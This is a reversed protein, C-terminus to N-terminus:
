RKARPSSPNSSSSSSVSSTPATIDIGLRKKVLEQDGFDSVLAAFKLPERTYFERIKEEALKFSGLGIFLRKGDSNVTPLKRIREPILFYHYAIIPDEPEDRVRSDFWRIMSAITGEKYVSDQVTKSEWDVTELLVRAYWACRKTKEIRNKSHDGEFSETFNLDCFTIFMERDGLEIMEKLHFEYVERNTEVHFRSPDGLSGMKEYLAFLKKYAFGSELKAAARLLDVKQNLDEIAKLQKEKQESTLKSIDRSPARFASGSEGRTGGPWRPKIKKAADMHKKVKDKVEDPCKRDFVPGESYKNLYKQMMPDNHRMNADWSRKVDKYPDSVESSITKVELKSEGKSEKLPPTTPRSFLM